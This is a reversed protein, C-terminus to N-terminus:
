DLNALYRYSKEVAVLMDTACADLEVIFWEAYAAAKLVATIDMIGEGLALMPQEIQGPGDKVHLLRVRKGFKRIMEAPDIGTVKIWYSDLEFSVDPHLNELMVEHALRFEVLQFEMWHTHLGFSLGRAAANAQAENYKECMAKIHAISGFDNLSMGGIVHKAGFLEMFDLVENKKEGIPLPVHASPVQLGLAALHKAAAEPTTDPLNYILEVGQYGAQAIRSTVGNFDHAMENRVSYLQVAIPITM